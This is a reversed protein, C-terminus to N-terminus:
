SLHPTFADVLAQKPRVGELQTKVQGGEFVTFNPISGVGFKAAAQPADDVNVKLVKLRGAYEVAIEEITPSMAKCPGCWPAWFDVLVPGKAEPVESTFDADNCDIASM